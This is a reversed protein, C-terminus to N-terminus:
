GGLDAARHSGRRESTHWERERLLVRSSSPVGLASDFLPASGAPEQRANNRQLVERRDVSHPRSANARYVAGGSLVVTTAAHSRVYRRSGVTTACSMSRTPPEGSSKLVPGTAARGCLRLAIFATRSSGAPGAEYCSSFSRLRASTRPRISHPGAKLVHSHSCRIVVLLHATSAASIKAFAM